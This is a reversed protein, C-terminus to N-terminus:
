CSSYPFFTGFYVGIVITFRILDSAKLVLNAFLLQLEFKTLFLGLQVWVSSHRHDLLFRSKGIWRHASEYAGVNQDHQASTQTEVNVRRHADILGHLAM